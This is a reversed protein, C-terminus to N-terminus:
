HIDSGVIIHFHINTCTARWETRKTISTNYNTTMKMRTDLALLTTALPNHMTHVPLQAEFENPLKLLPSRSNPDKLIGNAVM